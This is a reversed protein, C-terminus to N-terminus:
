CNANSVTGNPLTTNCYQANTFTAGTVNAGSLNAGLLYAGTLNANQLNASVLYAYGFMAYSLNAGAFNTGQLTTYPFQADTFTASNVNVNSLDTYGYYCGSYSGGSQVPNCRSAQATVSGSGSVPKPFAGASSVWARRYLGRRLQEKPSAVVGLGAAARVLKRQFRNLPLAYHRKPRQADATVPRRLVLQGVDGSTAVLSVNLANGQGKRLDRQDWRITAGFLKQSDLGTGGITIGRSSHRATQASGATAPLLLALASAAVLVTRLKM